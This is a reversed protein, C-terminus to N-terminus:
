LFNFGKKRFCEPLEEIISTGTLFNEKLKRSMKVIEAMTDPHSAKNRPPVYGRCRGLIAKDIINDSILADIVIALSTTKKLNQLSVLKGKNYAQEALNRMCKEIIQGLEQVGHKPNVGLFIDYADNVNLRIKRNFKSTDFQPLHLALPLGIYEIQSIGNAAISLFGVGAKKARTIDPAYRITTLDNEAPCAVIVRIPLGSAILDSYNDTVTPPFPRNSVECVIIELDTRWQFTPRWSINPDIQELIRTKSSIVFREKIKKHAVLAIPRFIEQLGNLNM